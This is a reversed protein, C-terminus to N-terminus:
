KAHALAPKSLTPKPLFLRGENTTLVICFRSVVMYCVSISITYALYVCNLACVGANEYTSLFTDTVRAM